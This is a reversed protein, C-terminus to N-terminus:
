LEALHSHMPLWALSRQGRVEAASSLVLVFLIWLQYEISHDALFLIM